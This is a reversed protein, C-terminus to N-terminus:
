LSPAGQAENLKNILDGYHAEVIPDDCDVEDYDSFLAGPTEIRHGTTSINYTRAEQSLRRAGESDKVRVFKGNEFVPHDGTVQIGNYSYWDTSIGRVVMTVRGHATEDGVDVKAIAKLRGDAMKVQTHAAFCSSGGGGGDRGGRERRSERFSSRRSVSARELSRTGGGAPSRGARSAALAQAGAKAAAAQQDAAIANLRGIQKARAPDVGNIGLIDRLQDVRTDILNQARLRNAALRTTGGLLMGLPTAGLLSSGLSIGELTNAATRATKQSAPSVRRTSTPAQRTVAAPSRLGFQPTRLDLATRTSGLANRGPQFIRDLPSSFFDIRAM